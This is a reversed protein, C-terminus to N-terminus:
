FTIKAGVQMWRPLQQSLAQGFTADDPNTDMNTLNARNFINYFEFRLQLNV